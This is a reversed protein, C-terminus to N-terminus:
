PLLFRQEFSTSYWGVRIGTTSLYHLQETPPPIKPDPVERWAPRERGWPAAQTTEENVTKVEQVLFCFGLPEPVQGLGDPTLDPAWPGRQRVRNGYAKDWRSSETM